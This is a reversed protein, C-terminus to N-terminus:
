RPGHGSTILNLGPAVRQPDHQPVSPFDHAQETGALYGIASLQEILDAESPPASHSGASPLTTEGDGADPEGDVGCGLGYALSCLILVLFYRSVHPSVAAVLWSREAIM